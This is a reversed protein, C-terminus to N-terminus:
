GALERIAPMIVHEAVSKYQNEGSAVARTFTARDIPKGFIVRVARRRFFFDFFGTQKVGTIAVPVIPASTALALYGIGGRAKGAGIGNTRTGEPFIAISAGRNGLYAFEALARSYNQTNGPVDIGGLARAYMGWGFRRLRKYFSLERTVFFIPLFKRPVAALLVPGDLFSTHSAALIGNPLGRIHEIGEITINLFVGFVVRLVPALARQIRRPTQYSYRFPSEVIGEIRTAIEAM